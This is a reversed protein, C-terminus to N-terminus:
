IPTDGREVIANIQAVCHELGAVSRPAGWFGRGPLAGGWWGGYARALAKVVAGDGYFAFNIPTAILTNCEGPGGYEPLLFDAIASSTPASTEVILLRGLRRAASIARRSEEEWAPTVGQARRDADRIARIEEASAGLARMAAAHGKDNACVLERWRSWLPSAGILDRIQEISTPMGAGAREGHHDVIVLRERDVDDGLDDALEILVPTENRALAAIIEDRWASARAGWALKADCIRDGYGADDLLRAIEIM